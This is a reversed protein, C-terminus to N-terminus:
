ELKMLIISKFSRFDEMMGPMEEPDIDISLEEEFTAILNLHNISDWGEITDPSSTDDIGDPDIQLIDTFLQLIREEM